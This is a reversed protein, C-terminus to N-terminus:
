LCLFLVVFLCYLVIFIKSCQEQVNTILKEFRLINFENEGTGGDAVLRLM